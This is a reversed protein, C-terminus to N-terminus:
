HYFFKFHYIRQSEPVLVPIISNTIQTHAKTTFIWIYKILWLYQISILNNELLTLEICKNIKHFNFLKNFGGINIFDKIRINFYNRFITSDCSMLTSYLNNILSIPVPLLISRKSNIINKVGPIQPNGPSM